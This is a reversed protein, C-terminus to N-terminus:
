YKQRAAMDNTEMEDTQSQVNGSPDGGEKFTNPSSPQNENVGEQRM